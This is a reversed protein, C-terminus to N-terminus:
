QANHFHTIGSAHQQQEWQLNVIFFVALLLILQQAQKAYGATTPWGWHGNDGGGNGIGISHFNIISPCKFVNYHWQHIFPPHCPIQRM